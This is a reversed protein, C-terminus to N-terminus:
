WAVMCIQNVKTYVALLYDYDDVEDDDGDDDQRCVVLNSCEHITVLLSAKAQPAM